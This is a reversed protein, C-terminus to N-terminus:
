PRTASTPSFDETAGALDRNDAYFDGGSTFGVNRFRPFDM